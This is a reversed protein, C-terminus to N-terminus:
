AHSLHIIIKETQVSFVFHEGAFNAMFYVFSPLWAQVIVADITKKGLILSGCKLHIKDSRIHRIHKGTCASRSSTNQNLALLCLLQIHAINHNPQGERMPNPILPGKSYPNCLVPLFAARQKFLYLRWSQMALFHLYMPLCLVCAYIWLGIPCESICLQILILFYKFYCLSKKHYKFIHM